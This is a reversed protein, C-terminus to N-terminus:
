GRMRSEVARFLPYLASVPFDWSGARHVIRGGFYRKFDYLGALPHRSDANPPIGCMDLVRCGQAKAWQMVRWLMLYVPKLNRKINASASYLYTARGNVASVICGALSDGEHSALFVRVRLRATGRYAEAMEVFTRYYSEPHGRFADRQTTVRFLDYWRPVAESGHETITVGKREAYGVNYRHGRDMEALLTQESRTLDILVTDPVQVQQGRSLPPLTAPPEPLELPLDWRLALLPKPLHARLKVSLDRVSRAPAEAPLGTPGFPVYALHYPGAVRRSLVLFRLPPSGDVLAEFAQPTWGGTSRKFEGWLSTQLLEDTSDLETLAIPDIGILRMPGM